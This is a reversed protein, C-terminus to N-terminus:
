LKLSRLYSRFKGNLDPHRLAFEVVTKLYDLKNGTDYYKGDKIEVALMKIKDELMLRLTDNYYLEEGEKLNLLAKDLYSFIEPTFVYGSVNALNSPANAKGPKEVIKDIEMICQEIERGGTFGYRDYDEDNTVRISALCTCQYKEYAAILQKFRSPKASIFDDSWTYIFPEDGIIHKANLLPTGNGYPGKQRVYIFNAMDSIKYVADLYHKKKDGGLKLNEILEKSPTDFHDEITRKHYGTVIIIDTIGADVLEEVVYQIVPKDVIPLMEKPMAKTQPLFRTGFGAAPIVAKTIKKM